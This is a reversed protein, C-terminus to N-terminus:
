NAARLTIQLTVNSTVYLTPPQGPYSNVQTSINISTVACDGAITALFDACEAKARLMLTRRHAQDMAAIAEPEMSQITENIAYSVNVTVPGGPVSPATLAADEALASQALMAFLFVLTTNRIPM